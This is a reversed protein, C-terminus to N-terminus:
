NSGLRWIWEFSWGDKMKWRVFSEGRGDSRVM